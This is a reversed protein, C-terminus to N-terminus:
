ENSKKKEFVLLAEHYSSIQQRLQAKVDGVLALALEAERRGEKLRGRGVLLRSLIWHPQYWNPAKVGM